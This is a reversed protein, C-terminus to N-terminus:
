RFSLEWLDGFAESGLGGFLLLRDGTLDDILTAGSRAPPDGGRTQVREFGTGADTALWTEGLAAGDTGRGGFLFTASGHRAIAPLQRPVPAQGAAESWRNTAAGSGPTLFWLDGLAPVGTTQGGYLALRGDSTWWCAHLCREVPRDAAPAQDSWAEAAFDYALTDAFRVGDSTFGHSIWFRGDPGIGSCSGYRAIPAGGGPPLLRWSGSAVGADPTFLWLDDFFTSGAQGGFVVLGLGPVWTAEHGFRAAPVEGTLDVIRWSSGRLDFVWLDDFETGGDRGGFLWAQATSPDVSWTHDERPDPAAGAVEVKTWASRSPLTAAPAPTSFGTSPAHSATTPIAGSTAAATPSTFPAAQGTCAALLAALLAAGALARPPSASASM